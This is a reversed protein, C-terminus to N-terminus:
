FSRSLVAKVCRAHFEIFTPPLANGIMTSLRQRGKEVPFCYGLPFTQLVAAERLTIARDEEPHLFRGKSPNACGCTITPSPSDWSMRGYVDRFGSTKRHCDLVLSDPLDHRGGGDHPVARIIDMVHQSHRGHLRSLSDRRVFDPNLNGFAMRVTRPSGATLDVDRVTVKGVRSALLIMRRRRQPVKYQQVNLVRVDCDYGLDKLSSCFRRLREDKALAPVNEIMIAKPLLERAFRLMEFILENRPDDQAAERNRTGITSFGQCPPCGALLDLEGKELGWLRAAEEVSVSSIDKEIVKTKPHNISFVEAADKDVELAGIVKFGAQRLGQSLGGAGSFLDVATHKAM